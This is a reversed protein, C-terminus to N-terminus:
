TVSFVVVCFGAVFLFFSLIAPLILTLLFLAFSGNRDKIKHSNYIEIQAIIYASLGSLLAFTIGALFLIMSCKLDSLFVFREGIDKSHLNGLFALVALAAGSNLVVLTKLGFIGVDKIVEAQVKFIESETGTPM